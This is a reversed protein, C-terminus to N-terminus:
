LDERGESYETICLRAKEVDTRIPRAVVQLRQIEM